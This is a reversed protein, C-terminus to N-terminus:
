GNSLTTSPATGDLILAVAEALDRCIFDPKAPHRNDAGASGTRVLVTKCGADSGAQIDVTRDGIMFSRSLDINLDAAAALLMGPLPKRCTCDIKLEPREGEFGKEPHHPCHYIRDVFAHEAGLLTELRAHAAALDVESMFGKAIAPQNTVVVALHESRNIRRIAEAVGPLLQMKEATVARDDDVNLVGDRDLFVAPRTNARNLRAVKGSLVDAEVSKLREPTGMDTIYETTNYAMIKEGNCFATPLVFRDLDSKTGASAYNLLHRSLVYLGANALNRHIEAPDRPKPYLAIVRGAEDIDLLDSDYPHHNPHVVLTAAARNEVHFASLRQLDISMITDGYFAVFDDRLHEEITKLAGATGLPGKECFYRLEMGRYGGHGFHSEICEGLHGTLLIIEEFGYRHALDLQHELLPKGALPVLAKPINEGLSGMRTGKGGCLVVVQKLTQTM